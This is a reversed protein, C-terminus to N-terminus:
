LILGNTSVKKHHPSRDVMASVGATAVATLAYPKKNIVSISPNLYM